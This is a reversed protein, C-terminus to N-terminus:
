RSREAQAVIAYHDSVNSVLKLNHIQYEKTTFISDVVYPLPGARHLNGDITSTISTPINDKYAKNLMAFSEGGRPANFDGALIINEYRQTAKILREMNHQHEKTSLGFGTWSFHTCGFTYASGAIMTKATLLVTHPVSDGDKYHDRWWAGDAPTAGYYIMDTDTFPSKSLIAVGMQGGHEDFIDTMPAFIGHMDLKESWRFPETKDSLQNKYVNLSTLSIM